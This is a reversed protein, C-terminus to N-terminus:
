GPGHERRLLQLVRRRGAATDVAVRQWDGAVKVDASVGAADEHFHLIGVRGRYFAGNAKEVLREIGIARVEELFPALRELTAKRARAM